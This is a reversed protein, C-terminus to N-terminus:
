SPGFFFRYLWSRRQSATAASGQAESTTYGEGAEEPGDQPRTAESAAELEPVRQALLAAIRRSEAHAEREADLQRELSRVRDRLEEVLEGRDPASPMGSPPISVVVTGDPTKDANLTGRSIRKRVADKTIGLREAAQAM